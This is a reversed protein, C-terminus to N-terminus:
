RFSAGDPKTIPQYVTVSPPVQTHSTERNTVRMSAETLAGVGILNNYQFKQVIKESLKHKYYYFHTPQISNRIMFYLFATHLTCLPSHTFTNTTFKKQSSSFTKIVRFSKSLTDDQMM